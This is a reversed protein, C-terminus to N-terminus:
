QLTVGSKQCLTKVMQKNRDDLRDYAKSATDADKLSCSCVAIIQYARALGPKARLAKRAAEVAAAFQGKLWADQADKMLAEPDGVAAPAAQERGPELAATPRPAPARTPRIPAPEATAVKRESRPRERVPPPEKAAPEPEPAPEPAPPKAAIVPPLESPPPEAAPPTPEPTPPTPAPPTPAPAAVKPPEPPAAKNGSFAFVAVGVALVAVVLGGIVMPKKSSGGAAYDDGDFGMDDGSSFRLRVHGLEIVDGPNLDVRDFQAGNVRVGNASELDVVVYREGDRVIKAHHRSISKHNVVIDNEPTRGIVMSPRDLPHEQGQLPSTIVVLRAPPGSAAPAQEVMARVPITPAGDIPDAAPALPPLPTAVPPVAMAPTVPPPMAPIGMPTPVRPFPAVPVVPAPPIPSAAAQQHGLTAGAPREIKISLKYDGISVHDGEKVPVAGNIPLGNVKTGTYSSLDEVFYQGGERRQFRAHRRSVNRETLRITNGEQRGITIEDRILPVAVAKGEEDEIVLKNM